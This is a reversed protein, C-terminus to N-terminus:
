SAMQQPAIVPAPVEAARRRNRERLGLRHMIRGVHDPDYKVGFRRFIADAFRM